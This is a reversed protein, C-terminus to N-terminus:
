NPEPVQAAQLGHAAFVTEIASQRDVAVVDRLEQGRMGRAYLAAREFDAAVFVGPLEAARLDSTRVNQVDIRPNWMRCEHGIESVTRPAPRRKSQTM